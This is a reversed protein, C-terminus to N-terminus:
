RASDAITRKGRRLTVRREPYDGCAATFMVRALRANAARALVREVAPRAADWLEIVYPLDDPGGGAAARDSLAVVKPTESGRRVM